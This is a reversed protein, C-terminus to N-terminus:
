GITRSRRNRGMSSSSMSSSPSVLRRGGFEYDVFYERGHVQVRQQPVIM